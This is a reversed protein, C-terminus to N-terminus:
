LRTKHLYFILNLLILLVRNWHRNIICLFVDDRLQRQELKEIRNRLEHEIRRKHELRQGLKRNQFALTQM